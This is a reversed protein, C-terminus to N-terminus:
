ASQSLLAAFPQSTLVTVSEFLQPRHPFGHLPPIVHWFEVHAQGEPMCEHLPVHMESMDVDKVDHPSVHAAQVAGVPPVTVHAAVAGSVGTQLGAHGVPSVSQVPVALPVQTLVDVLAFLQPAHPLAHLRESAVADHVAPAQV